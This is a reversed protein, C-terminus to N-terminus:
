EKEIFDIYKALVEAHDEMEKLAVELRNIYELMPVLMPDNKAYSFINEIKNKVIDLMDSTESM